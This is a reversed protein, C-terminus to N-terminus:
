RKDRRELTEETEEEIERGGNSTLSRTGEDFGFKEMIKERYKPNGEYSIGWDLWKVTRGLITVEKQDNKGYGLTGRDKIDFWERMLATIWELDGELGAFTFDDGHVALSM